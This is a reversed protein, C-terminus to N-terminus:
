AKEITTTQIIDFSDYVYCVYIYLKNTAGHANAITHSLKAAMIVLQCVEPKATIYGYRFSHLTVSEVM